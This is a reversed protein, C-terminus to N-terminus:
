SLRILQRYIEYMFIAGSVSVNLSDTLQGVMPIQVLASCEKAWIEPLGKDETGLVVATKQPFSLDFLSQNGQLHASVIFYNNDQLFSLAQQTSLSHINGLFCAGTSARIINPNYLDIATDVLLVTQFGSSDATRCLAGINGPKELSVLVLIPYNPQAPLPLPPKQALVALVGTPNQRYGAKEILSTSVEYVPAHTAQIFIKEEATAIEECYLLFHPHYGFDLARELDRLYEVTFLREQHRTKKEQLSKALRIKPNQLSTIRELIPM